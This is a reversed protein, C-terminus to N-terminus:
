PTAPNPKEVSVEGVVKITDGSYRYIDFVGATPNGQIDMDIPGSAGTYDIDKGDELAKIADPLQQWTFEDGGPATIDILHDAMQQGDTSGAAVASLYCLITADFQQAAYPALEVDHPDASKFDHVFASSAEADDPIGPALARMGDIVDAGVQGPLGPSVLQDSGWAKEPDWTSQSTFAEALGAFADPKAIVLVANPDGSLVQYAQGSYASATSYGSSGSYGGSGYGGTTTTYGSTSPASSAPPTLVVQEGVTGDNGQWDQIFDQSLTDGYTDSSAAVNVSHGQAGSVDEDIAKSLASGEVSEPLATSNVLDHDSLDGVDKSTPVPVIQLVKGPIAVEQAAKEVADSSWPGTLCSAGDDDVLRRAAETATQTDAGQDESSSRITHHAGATRIAQKIEDLAFDSAKQGSDGLPQSTGSLPLSNGITLSLQKAGPGNGGGGGGGGCAALGLGLAVATFAAASRRLNARSQPPKM